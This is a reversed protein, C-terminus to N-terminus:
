PNNGIAIIYRQVEGHFVKYLIIFDGPQANTWSNPSFRDKLSESHYMYIVAGDRDKMVYHKILKSDTPLLREAEERAQKLTLFHKNKFFRDIYFANEDFMVDYKSEYETGMTFDLSKTPMFLRDWESKSLGLGASEFAFVEQFSILSLCIFIVMSLNVKKM